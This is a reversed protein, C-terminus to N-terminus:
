ASCRPRSRRSRPPTPPPRTACPGAAGRGPRAPRRRSPGSAPVPRDAQAPAEAPGRRDGRRHARHRRPGARRAPVRPRPRVGGRPARAVTGAVRRHLAHPRHGAGRRPHPHGLVPVQAAGDDDARGRRPRRCRGPTSRGSTTSRALILGAARDGPGRREGPVPLLLQRQARHPRAPRPLAVGLVRRALQAGGTGRTSRSRPRCCRARATPACSSTSPGQTAARQDDDLLPSCWELFQAASDALAPVPVHPLGDELDFTRDNM